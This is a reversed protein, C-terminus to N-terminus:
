NENTNDGNNVTGDTAGETAKESETSSVSETPDSEDDLKITNKCAVVSFLLTLTM